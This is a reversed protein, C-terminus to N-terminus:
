DQRSRLHVGAASRHAQATQWVCVVGEKTQTMHPAVDHPSTGVQRTGL